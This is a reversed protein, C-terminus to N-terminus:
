DCCNPDRPCCSLGACKQPHRCFAPYPAPKTHSHVEALEVVAIEYDYLEAPTLPRDTKFVGHPYREDKPLDRQEPM